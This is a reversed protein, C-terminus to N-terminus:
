LPPVIRTGRRKLAVLLPLDFVRRDCHERSAGSRRVANCPVNCPADPSAGRPNCVRRLTADALRTYHPRMYSDLCDPAPAPRAPSLSRAERMALRLSSTM